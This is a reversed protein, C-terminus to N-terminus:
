DVRRIGVVRGLREELRAVGERVGELDRGIDGVMLSVTGVEHAIRRVEIRSLAESLTTVKDKRRLWLWRERLSCKRYEMGMRNSRQLHDDEDDDERESQWTGDKERGSGGYQQSQYHHHHHHHHRPPYSSATATTRTPTNSWAGTDANQFEPNLFPAELHRFQKIMDRIAIRMIKVSSESSSSHFSQLDREFHMPPYHRRGRSRKSRTRSAGRSLGHGGGGGGGGGPESSSRGRGDRSDRRRSKMRRKVRRLHRREELLGQKLNSLYDMIESPASYLALLADWFVRVFTALTFAFSIFGIAVSVASLPAIVSHSITVGM